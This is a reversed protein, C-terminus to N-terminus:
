KLFRHYLGNNVTWDMKPGEMYSMFTGLPIQPLRCPNLSVEQDQQQESNSLEDQSTEVPEDQNSMTAKAQASNKMAKPM